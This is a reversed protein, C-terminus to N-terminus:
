PKGWSNTRAHCLERALMRLCKMTWPEHESATQLVVPWGSPSGSLTTEITTTFKASWENRWSWHRSACTLVKTSLQSATAAVGPAVQLAYVAMSLKALMTWNVNSLGFVCKQATWAPSRLDRRWCFWLTMRWVLSKRPEHSSSGATWSSYRGPGYQWYVLMRPVISGYCHWWLDFVAHWLPLQKALIDEHSKQRLVQWPFNGAISPEPWPWSSISYFPRM